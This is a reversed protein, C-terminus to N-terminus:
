ATGTEIVTLWIPMGLRAEALSKRLRIPGSVSGMSAVNVAACFEAVARRTEAFKEGNALPSRILHVVVAAAATAGSAAAVTGALASFLQYRLGAISPEAGMSTGIIVDLLNDLRKDLNTNKGAHARKRAQEYKDALTGDLSENVKGEIGVVVRGCDAAGYALVDHNRVGGAYSDFSIQAEAVAKNLRLGPLVPELAACVAPAGQGSLWLRALEKASYGDAWKGETSALRKWDDISEIPKGSRSVIPVPEIM